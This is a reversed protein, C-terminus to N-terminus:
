SSGLARARAEASSLVPVIEFDMVDRWNSMWSEFSGYDDTEMVQWCTALDASIFSDVYRLSEPMMRGREVLRRYIDAVRGPKFREIVMYHMRELITREFSSTGRDTKSTSRTFPGEWTERVAM